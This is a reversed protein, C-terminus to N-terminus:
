VVLREAERSVDYYLNSVQKAVSKWNYQLVSSRAARSMRVLTNTNQLLSDLREAFFSSCHPVLYGTEGHSVVTMLGGARTAVVPTGCALSEVAVLGFSEHYSPVVTVDAASYLEPLEEQPKAGLFHVRSSIGLEKTLKRLQQVEADGTPKGGVIVIQANTRMMAAAQLLLDPGKFPDLRGVFLLMPQDPKLGLEARLQQKSQPVPQFLSLDVGCPIVRVRNAMINCNRLIQAREESTTAIVSDVQQILRQEMELRLPPEAIDPNALQKLKGLTHFMTVHPVDWRRALKMAAVGSLWYHSHLMDYNRGESRRFEDIREVFAPLYQYLDLKSLSTPPGAQISIVRVNKALQVIPPLYENTRRTFIDVSIDSQGLERALERIYVNMGGADRTRGPVDLPSTHISLMAVSFSM